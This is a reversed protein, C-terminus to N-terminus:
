SFLLLTLEHKCVDEFWLVPFIMERLKAAPYVEPVHPVAINIQLRVQARLPTGTRQFYSYPNYIFLYIIILWIRLKVLSFKWLYAFSCDVLNLCNNNNLM